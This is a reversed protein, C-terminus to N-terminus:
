FFENTIRRYKHYFIINSKQSFYMLIITFNYSSISKKCIYYNQTKFQNPCMLFSLKFIHIFIQHFFSDVPLCIERNREIFLTKRSILFHQCRQMIMSLHFHQNCFFSFYCYPKISIFHFQLLSFPKKNVTGPEM